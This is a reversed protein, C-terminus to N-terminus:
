CPRFGRIPNAVPEVDLGPVHDLEAFAAGEVHEVRICAEVDARAGVDVAEVLVVAVIRQGGPKTSSDAESGFTRNVEIKSSVAVVGRTGSGILTVPSVVVGGRVMAIHPLTPMWLPATATILAAVKWYPPPETLVVFMVIGDCDTSAKMVM